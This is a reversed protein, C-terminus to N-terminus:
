PSGGVRQALVSGGTSEATYLVGDPGVAIGTPFGLRNSRDTPRKVATAQGTPSIQTVEGREPLTVYIVGDPGAAIYPKNPVGRNEWGQVNIQSIPTGNRDLRQVRGNWADTVLLDDGDLALGTPENFQGPDTGATGFMRVFQGNADFVQIRKNGTDTVYVLGDRGIAISRPGWFRGPASQPDRNNVDALGGWGTIFRGDPSFKQIRHNWTDAVYIEGNPAVAIGWPENLEGDGTGARGWSWAVTGDPNFVTIRNARGESVYVKGDPGVAVGKPEILQPEGNQGVGFLSSSADLQEVTTNRPGTNLAPAPRAGV